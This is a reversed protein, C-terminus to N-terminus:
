PHRPKSSQWCMMKAVEALGLAEVVMYWENEHSFVMPARLEAGEERLVWGLPKWVWGGNRSVAAAIGWRGGGSSGPSACAQAAFFMHLEKSGPPQPLLMPQSIAALGPLQTTTLVPNALSLATATSVNLLDLPHLRLPSAAGGSYIGFSTPLAPSAQCRQSADHLSGSVLQPSLLLWLALGLALLVWMAGPVGAPRM